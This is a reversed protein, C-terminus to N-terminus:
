MTVSSGKESLLPDKKYEITVKDASGTIVRSRKNDDLSVTDRQAESFKPCFNLILIYKAYRHESFMTLRTTLATILWRM